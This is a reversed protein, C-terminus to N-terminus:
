ITQESSYNNIKIIRGDEAVKFDKVKEQKEKEKIFKQLTKVLEKNYFEIKSNAKLM